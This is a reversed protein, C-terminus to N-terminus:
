SKGVLLNLPVSWIPIARKWAAIPMVMMNSTLLELGQLV